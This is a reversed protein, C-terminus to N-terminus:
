SPMKKTVFDKVAYRLPKDLFTVDIIPAFDIRINDKTPNIAEQHAEGLGEVDEVVHHLHLILTTDIPRFTTHM